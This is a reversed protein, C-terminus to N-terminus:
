TGAVGTRLNAHAPHELGAGTNEGARLLLEPGFEAGSDCHSKHQVATGSNRQTQTVSRRNIEIEERFLRQFQLETSRATSERLGAFRKGVEGAAGSAGGSYQAAIVVAIDACLREGSRVANKQLSESEHQVVGGSGAIHLWGAAGQGRYRHWYHQGRRATISSSPLRSRM